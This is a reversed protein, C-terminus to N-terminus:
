SFEHILYLSLYMIPYTVYELACLQDSVYDLGSDMRQGVADVRRTEGGRITGVKRINAEAVVRRV